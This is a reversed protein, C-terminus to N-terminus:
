AAHAVVGLHARSLDPLEALQVVTALFHEPRTHIIQAEGGAGVIFDEADGPGDGVEFSTLLNLLM